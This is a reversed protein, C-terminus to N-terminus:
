DLVPIAPYVEQVSSNSASPERAWEASWTKIGQKEFGSQVVQVM